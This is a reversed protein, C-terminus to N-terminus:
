VHFGNRGTCNGGFANKHKNLKTESYSERTFIKQCMPCQIKYTTKYARAGSKKAPQFKGASALGTSVRRIPPMSIIGTASIEVPYRESYPLNTVTVGEIKSIIFAKAKTSEREFGYFLKNGTGESRRFAIPEVTRAKGGYMLTICVRNAAAFQIKNLIAPSDGLRSYRGAHFISEKGIPLSETQEVELHGHLWDFFPELDQWFSEIPPLAPLQHALMHEWQPELEDLKEHQEIDEFTPISMNKYQCKKDLISLVLKTNGIMERNRFFHVVDYLDRPRIRQALARIKEAVVEEFAYCTAHIGHKPEDTYPHHVPKIVQTLVLVEDTTLDLKITAVGRKKRLPGNYTVKGQASHNGNGKDIIKFKLEDPMFEIGVEETLFTIIELFANKLFDENLQSNDTLTFDLDESFRFTEFFCKKLSTGGKFAWAKTAEHNHIGHLLWGLVYDKEVTDPSLGLETAISLIENKEIM